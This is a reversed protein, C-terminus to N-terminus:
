RASAMPWFASGGCGSTAIGGWTTVQSMSAGAAFRRGQAAFTAAKLVSCRAAAIIRWKYRVAPGRRLYAHHPRKSGPDAACVAVGCHRSVPRPWNSGVKGPVGGAPSSSRWFPGGEAAAQGVAGRVWTATAVWERIRFFM